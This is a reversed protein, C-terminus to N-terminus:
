WIQTPPNSVEEIGVCVLDKLYGNENRSIEIYGQDKKSTNKEKEDPDYHPYNEYIATPIM